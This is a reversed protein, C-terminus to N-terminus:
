PMAPLPVVLPARAPMREALLDVGTALSALATALTGAVPGDAPGVAVSLHLRYGAALEDLVAAAASLRHRAGQPEVLGALHDFAAAVAASSTRVFDHPPFERLEPLRRHWAAAREGADARLSWFALASVHDGEAALWATLVEHWRLEAWCAHGVWGAAESLGAGPPVVVSPEARAADEPM